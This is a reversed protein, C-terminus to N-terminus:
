RDEGSGLVTPVRVFCGQTEAANRLAEDIGLSRGHSDPVDDAVVNVVEGIPHYTPPVGDLDYARIPALMRMADCLYAHMECVEEDSLAIRAYRALGRVDDKTLDPTDM